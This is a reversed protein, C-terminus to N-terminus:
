KNQVREIKTGCHPGFNVIEQSPSLLLYGTVTISMQYISVVDIMLEPCCSKMGTFKDLEGPADTNKYFIKM